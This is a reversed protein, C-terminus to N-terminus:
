LKKKYMKWYGSLTLRTRRMEKIENMSMVNSIHKYFNKNLAWEECVVDYLGKDIDMIILSSDDKLNFVKQIADYMCSHESYENELTNVTIYKYNQQVFIKRM